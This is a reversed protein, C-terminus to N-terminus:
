IGNAAQIERIYTIISQIEADSVGEVPPMSGFRWHHSRVGSKVAMVFAFDAHRKTPYFPHILPPGQDTGAANTGHCTACSANFATEGSLAAPSLEPVVISQSSPLESAEIAQDRDNSSSKAWWVATVVVLLIAGGGILNLKSM